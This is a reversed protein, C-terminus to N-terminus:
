AGNRSSIRWIERAAPSRGDSGCTTAVKRAGGIALVISWSAGCPRLRLGSYTDGANWREGHGARWRLQAEHVLSTARTCDPIRRCPTTRWGAWTTLSWPPWKSLQCIANRPLPDSLAPGIPSRPWHIRAFFWSVLETTLCRVPREESGRSFWCNPVHAYNARQM